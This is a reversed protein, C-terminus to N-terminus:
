SGLIDQYGQSKTDANEVNEAEKLVRDLGDEKLPM